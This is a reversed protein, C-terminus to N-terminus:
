LPGGQNMMVIFGNLVTRCIAQGRIAIATDRGIGAAGVIVQSSSYDFAWQTSDWTANDWTGLLPSVSTPASAETLAFNYRAEVRYVPNPTESLIAPRISVIRKHNGNGLNQYATLLSWDVPTYSTSDSLKVEDVYGTNICVRGDTTGFYVQGRLIGASYIPLGRYQSWSKNAFSMALQITPLSDSGTSPVTIELANDQPHIFISWARNNKYTSAYLNFLNAISATEYQRNDSVPQGVVLKSLPVVGILSMILLDGGYDTVIKRGFPVGGVYWTGKLDFTSASSPDTGQYIVVDGASSLAVLLTDIGGGGDYSWNYLGTLLGGARMRMGFDFSTATGYISNIPLYWGRTTDREVFWLRNKWVTAFVFNAPDATFANHQDALSPGIVNAVTASVYNWTAGGDAIGSGTGTPGGSGASTGSVACVYVKGGNTVRDGIAYLTNSAWAQATGSAVKSWSASNEAYVYMGNQEDCYILFRGASTSIVTSVGLGADGSADPFVVVQVPAQTSSTVDWIGSQTAAFVADTSNNKYSGAFTIITKVVSDSINTAWEQYGLRSRLGYESSIMNFLYVCFNPPMDYGAHVTDIGGVPAPLNVTSTTGPAPIPKQRMLM